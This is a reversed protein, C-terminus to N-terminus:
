KAGKARASVNEGRNVKLLKEAQPMYVARLEYLPLPQKKGQVQRGAFSRKARAGGKARQEQEWTACAEFREPHFYALRLWAKVGNRCCRGGCNNYSFGLRYLHPPEIGWDDQCVQMLSRTEQPEWTLPYDVLAAPIAEAYSATTNCQRKVEDPDYGIYVIPLDPMAQIFQRFPRVKLEYSCPALLDCPILKREEAVQLTTRGDTYWYLRGGVLCMFDHLFRYLDEDEYRVDAFWLLVNERGYRAIVRIAAFASALGGSLSVVHPAMERRAFEINTEPILHCMEYTHDPDPSVM